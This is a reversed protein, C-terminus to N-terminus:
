WRETKCYTGTPRVRATITSKFVGSLLGRGRSKITTNAIFYATRRTTKGKARLLKFRFVKSSVKKKYTNTDYFKVHDGFARSVAPTLRLEVDEFLFKSYNELSFILLYRKNKEIAKLPLTFGGYIAWKVKLSNKITDSLLEELKTVSM